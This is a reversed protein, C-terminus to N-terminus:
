TMWQITYLWLYYEPQAGHDVPEDDVDDHLSVLNGKRFRLLAQSMSDVLDDHEGHPFMACEEIM